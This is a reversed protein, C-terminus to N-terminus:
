SFMGSYTAPDSLTTNTDKTGKTNFVVRLVVPVNRLRAPLSAVQGPLVSLVQCPICPAPERVQATLEFGHWVIVFSYWGARWAQLLAAKLEQFSCAGLQAPRVHGPYDSLPRLALKEVLSVQKFTLPCTCNSTLRWLKACVCDALVVFWEDFQSKWVDIPIPKSALEMVSAERADIMQAFGHAGQESRRRCNTAIADLDVTGRWTTNVRRHTHDVVMGIVAKENFKSEVAM